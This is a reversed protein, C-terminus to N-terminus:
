LDLPTEYVNEQEDVGAPAPMTEYEATLNACVIPGKDSQYAHPESHTEQSKHYIASFLLYLFILYFSLCDKHDKGYQM